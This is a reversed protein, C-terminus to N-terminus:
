GTRGRSLAAELILTAIVEPPSILSVHSAKVEVTQGRTEGACAKARTLLLERERVNQAMAAARGFEKHAEDVRGLKSLLDGRVSPLLHYQQLAPEDMLADILELGAAPGFAM